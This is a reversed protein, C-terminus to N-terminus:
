TLGWTAHQLYDDLNVLMEPRTQDWTFLYEAPAAILNPLDGVEMGSIEQFLMGTGGASEAKVKFGWENSRNFTEVLLDLANATNGAWPHLFQIQLGRLDKPQVQLHVPLTATPTVHPVLTRTATPVITSATPTSTSVTKCAALQILLFISM